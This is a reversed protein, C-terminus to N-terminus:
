IFQNKDVRAAGGKNSVSSATNYIFYENLYVANPNKVCLIAAILVNSSPKSAFSISLSRTFIKRGGSRFCFKETMEPILGM